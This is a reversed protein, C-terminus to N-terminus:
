IVKLFIGKHYYLYDELDEQNKCLYKELYKSINNKHIIAVGNGEDFVDVENSLSQKLNDDVSIAEKFSELSFKKAM